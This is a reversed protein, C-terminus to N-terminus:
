KVAGKRRPRRKRAYNSMKIKVARPYSRDTRRPPLVLRKLVTELNRLRSPIAGPHRMNAWWLWEDVILRLAGVFSIRTPEVGAQAAVREIELRVLNYALLVGWLEQAVGAPSKSRLTEERELIETKIEDYGLELEWREHYLAVIEEAPYQEPDLLSTLLTQPRFGRRHYKIARMVWTKPLTPDQRRAQSSVDMEVLSDGRGLRQVERWRFNKKARVMWHRNHGDRALPILVTAAFFLRDMITLSNDPVSRWLERAYTHEGHEYPGFSAAALLHSRLAMLGVVRVLPYGSPGRHGGNGYGFYAANEDSDAVRLTSGDVGYLALGRWRHSSASAHAWEEACRSFLWAVPEEGLRARAQHVTSEAVLQRKGGAAPLVLGLSDAVEVIPRDRVMAMGIPLWIALEAPFRRTRISVTETAQLAQEIWEPDIHRTINDFNHPALAAVLPLSRDLHM